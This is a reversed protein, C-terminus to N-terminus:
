VQEIERMGKNNTAGAKKTGSEGQEKKKRNTFM